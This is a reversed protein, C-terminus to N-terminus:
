STVSFRLPFVNGSDPGDVVRLYPFAELPDINNRPFPHSSPSFLVTRDADQVNTLFDFDDPMQSDALQSNEADRPYASGASHQAGPMPSDSQQELRQNQLERAQKGQRHSRFWLVSMVVLAIAFVCVLIWAIQLM